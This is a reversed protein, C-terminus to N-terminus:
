LFFFLFLVSTHLSECLWSMSMECENSMSEVHCTLNSMHIQIYHILSTYFHFTAFHPFIRKTLYSAFMSTFRLYLPMYLTCCWLHLSFVIIFWLYFVQIYLHPLSTHFSYFMSECTWTKLPPRAHLCLFGNHMALTSLYMILFSCFLSFLHDHYIM